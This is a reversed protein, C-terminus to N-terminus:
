FKFRGTLQVRRAPFASVAQGFFPSGQDGVYAVYNVHNFINFADLSVTAVMGKDKKKTLFFDRSLRLDLDTYGPGQLTNRSVASPRANFQGTGFTDLGTTLSYPKGSSM